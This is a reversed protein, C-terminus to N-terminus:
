DIPNGMDDHIDSDNPAGDKTAPGVGTKGPHDTVVVTAEGVNDAYNSEPLQHCLGAPDLNPCPEGRAARFAPNVTIRILYTGPPVPVQGDGGDLVFYQGSLQWVYVDAWGHSIGQNGPVGVLGCNRYAWTKVSGDATPAPSVDIMCFGRKAARWTKGTAPDILQYTAYHRFHFHNHCTAFEYLGDNAAFHANPDGIFIDADGINPTSVTFRLVRHPGPQVDGEIVSCATASFDEDRVIWHNQLTKADVVLNPSGTLDPPRDGAFAPVALLLSLGLLATRM